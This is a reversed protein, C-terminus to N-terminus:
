REFNVKAFRNVTKQAEEFRTPIFKEIMWAKYSEFTEGYWASSKDTQENQWDLRNDETYEGNTWKELEMTWYDINQIAKNLLKKSQVTLRASKELKSFCDMGYNMVIGDTFSVTAINRIYQGCRDCTCGENKGVRNFAIAKIHAM